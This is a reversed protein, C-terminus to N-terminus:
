CNKYMLVMADSPIKNTDSVIRKDLMNVQESSLGALTDEGITNLINAFDLDGRQRM